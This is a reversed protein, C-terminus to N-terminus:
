MLMRQVGACSQTILLLQLECLVAWHLLSKKWSNPTRFCLVEWEWQLQLKWMEVDAVFIFYFNFIFWCRTRDAYDCRCCVFWFFLNLILILIRVVIFYLIGLCAGNEWRDDVFVCSSPDLKLQRAAELYIESEPKRLGSFPCSLNQFILKVKFNRYFVIASMQYVHVIEM